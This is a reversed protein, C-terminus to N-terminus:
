KKKAAKGPKKSSKVALLKDLRAEIRSTIQDRVMLMLLGLKINLTIEKPLLQLQGTIGSVKFELSDGSWRTVMGYERELELAIKNAIKVAQGHTLNHFRRISIRSM